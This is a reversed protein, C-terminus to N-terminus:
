KWFKDADTFAEWREGLENLGHHASGAVWGRVLALATPDPPTKGAAVVEDLLRGTVAADNLAGLSDQLGALAFAYRRAKKRAFLPAFFEAAYRLKKAAIRAAHREAPTATALQAGRKRLKKHRASLVGAAYATVPTGLWQTAETAGPALTEDSLALGLTLLLRQYRASGLVEAVARRHVSRVQGARVRLGALGASDRFSAVIPPLTLTAFVDWDRAPGLANQLWRLSELLDAHRSALIPAKALALCSRLRRLGVRLQHLFEPDRGEIAGAENAQMQAICAWAIRRLAQAADLKDELPSAEAKKPSDVAGAALAFGRQAKSRYGLRLPVSEQVALALAFAHAAEGSKMEIEIESVPEARKGVRIEGSDCALEAAVNEALALQTVVRHVQTTFIPQLRDRIEPREFVKAVPTEDLRELELRQAAVPWEHEEQVHLGAASTGDSKVTQIWQEGDRRLRLGIRSRSLTLEPTDYYVGLLDTSRSRGRKAALVAPHRVFKRVDEPAVLLKLEIEPM